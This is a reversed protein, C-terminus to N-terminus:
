PSPFGDPYYDEVIMGTCNWLYLYCHNMANKAFTSNATDHFQVCSDTFENELVSCRSSLWVYLNWSHNDGARNEIVSVNESRTIEIGGHLNSSMYCNSISVNACYDMRIGNWNGTSRVHEFLGNRVYELCIGFWSTRDSHIDVNRVVFYADADRIYIGSGNSPAVIDWGEIVYPNRSSGNGGVVGNSQTFASDGIISIPEHPKKGGYLSVTLVSAALLVVVCAIVFITRRKPPM